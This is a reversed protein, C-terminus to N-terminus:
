MYVRFVIYVSLCSFTPWPTQDVGTLEDVDDNEKGSKISKEGLIYDIYESAESKSSIIM